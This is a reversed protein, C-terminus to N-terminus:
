FASLRAHRQGAILLILNPYAVNALTLEPLSHAYYCYATPLSNSLDYLPMAAARISRPSLLLARTDLSVMEVLSFQHRTLFM